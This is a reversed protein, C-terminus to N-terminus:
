QENSESFFITDANELIVNIIKVKIGTSSFDVEPCIENSGILTPGFVVALNKINMLNVDSYQSVKILHKVIYKLTCYHSTELSDICKKIEEMNLENDDNSILESLKSYVDPPIVAEPLERFYQKLVSTIITIESFEGDESLNPDEGRSFISILLKMLLTRGSKRYIGEFDMGRKEVEETCKKVIFPINDPELSAQKCLDTGFAYLAAIEPDVSKKTCEPIKETICKVHCKVGCCKCKVERGWMIDNCYECKSPTLFKHYQFDHSNDPIKLKLPSTNGSSKQLEDTSAMSNEKITIKRSEDFLMSESACIKKNSKKLKKITSSKSQSISPSDNLPIVCVSREDDAITPTKLDNVNEINISEKSDDSNLTSFNMSKDNNSKQPQFSDNILKNISEYVAFSNNVSSEM